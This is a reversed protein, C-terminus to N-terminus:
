YAEDHIALVTKLRPTSCKVDLYYKAQLFGAIPSGQDKLLRWIKKRLLTENFIKMDRYGLGGDDKGKCLRSVNIL